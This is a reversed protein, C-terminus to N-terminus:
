MEMRNASGGDPSPCREGQKVLPEKLLSYFVDGRLKIVREESRQFTTGNRSRREVSCHPSARTVRFHIFYRGRLVRHKVLLIGALSQTTNVSNTHISERGDAERGVTGM